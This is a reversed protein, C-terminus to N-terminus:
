GSPAAPRIRLRPQPQNRQRQSGHSSAQSKCISLVRAAEEFREHGGSACSPDVRPRLRLGRGLCAYGRQCLHSGLETASAEGGAEGGDVSRPPSGRGPRSTKARASRSRSAGGARRAIALSSARLPVQGGRAAGSAPIAHRHASCSPNRCRPDPDTGQPTPPGAHLPQAGRPRRGIHHRRCKALGTQLRPTTGNAPSPSPSWGQIDNDPPPRDARTLNPSPTETQPHLCHPRLVSALVDLPGISLTLRDCFNENNVEWQSGFITPSNFPCCTFSTLNWPGNTQCWCSFSSSSKRTWLPRNVISNRSRRTGTSSPSNMMTGRWVSWRGTASSSTWPTRNSGAVVNFVPSACLSRVM